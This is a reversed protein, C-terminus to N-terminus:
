KGEWEDLAERWPIADEDILVCGCDCCRDAPEDSSDTGDEQLPRCSDRLLVKPFDGSDFTHEYHRDVNEARALSNLLREVDQPGTAYPHWTEVRGERVLREVLDTACYFDAAYQYGVLDASNQYVM